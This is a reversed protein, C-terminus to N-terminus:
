RPAALIADTGAGITVLKAAGITLLRAAGFGAELIYLVM